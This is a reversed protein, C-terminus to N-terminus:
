VNISSTLSVADGNAYVSVHTTGHSDKGMSKGYYSSPFTKFDVIKSRLDNIFDESQLKKIIETMNEYNEDGLLSRQYFAHKFTEILRHYFIESDQKNNLTENTINFGQMIKMILSVLVGSSPLSATFLRYNSDLSVAIPQKIQAKYTNLDLLTVNAGNENMENVIYKTLSGNYFASANENSITELTEALNLMKIKDNLNYIKNTKNNIFLNSLEKSDRIAIENAKIASALAKSIFFGNRCM